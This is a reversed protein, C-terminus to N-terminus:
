LAEAFGPPFVWANKIEFLPEGLSNGNSSPITASRELLETSIAVVRPLDARVFSPYDEPGVKGVIHRQAAWFHAVPAFTTWAQHRTSAGAKDHKGGYTEFRGQHQGAEVQRLIHDEVLVREGREHQALFDYLLSGALFGNRARLVIQKMLGPSGPGALAASLLAVPVGPLHVQEAFDRGRLESNIILTATALARETEKEPFLMLCM